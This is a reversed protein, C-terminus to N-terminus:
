RIVVKRDEEVFTALLEYEVEALGSHPKYSLRRVGPWGSEYLFQFEDLSLYMNATYVKAQNKFSYANAIFRALLEHQLPSINVLNDSFILKPVYFESALLVKGVTTEFKALRGKTIAVARRYFEYADRLLLDFLSEESKIVAAAVPLIKRIFGRVGDYVLEINQALQMSRFDTFDPAFSIVQMGTIDETNFRWFEVFARNAYPFPVVTKPLFRITKNVVVIRTNSIDQLLKILDIIEYYEAQRGIIWLKRLEEPAEVVYGKRQVVNQIARLINIAPQKVPKPILELLRKFVQVFAVIITALYVARLILKAVKLATAAIGSTPTGTGAVAVAEIFVSKLEKIQRLALELYFVAAVSLTAALVLDSRREIVCLVDSTKPALLGGIDRELISKEDLLVSLALRRNGIRIDDTDVFGKLTLNKITLEAELRRFTDTEYINLFYDYDDDYLEINELRATVNYTDLSREVLITVERFDKWNQIKRKDIRLEVNM